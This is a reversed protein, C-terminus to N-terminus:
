PHHKGAVPAPLHLVDHLPQLHPPRNGHCDPQGVRHHRASHASPRVDEGHPVQLYEKGNKKKKELLLRCVLYMPSQLESTHEESRPSVASSALRWSRAAMSPSARRSACIRAMRRSSSARSVASTLALSTRAVVM